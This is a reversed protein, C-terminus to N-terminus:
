SAETELVYIASAAGTAVGYWAYGVIDGDEDANFAVHGGNPGLRIGRTSGVSRTLSLYITNASLNIVLFALRDPNNRLVEAATTGLAAVVPNEVARTPMGYKKEIYRSLAM